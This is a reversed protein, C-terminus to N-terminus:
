CESAFNREPGMSTSTSMQSPEKLYFTALFTENALFSLTKRKRPYLSKITLVVSLM